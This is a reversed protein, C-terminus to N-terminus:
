TKGFPFPQKTRDAYTVKIWIWCGRLKEGQEQYLVAGLGEQLADTHLIFQTKFDPYAM